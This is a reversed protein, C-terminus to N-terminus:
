GVKVVRSELFSKTVSRAPSSIATHAQLVLNRGVPGIKVWFLDCSEDSTSIPKGDAECVAEKAMEYALSIPDQEARRASRLEDSPTLERITMTKYGSAEQVEPPFTFTSTLRAITNLPLPESM